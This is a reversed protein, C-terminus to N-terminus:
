LAFRETHIRRRSFGVDCLVHKVDKMMQPPGCLFVRDAAACEGAEILGRLMAANLRGQPGPWDPQRSLVHHVALLPMKSILEQLRDRAFIDNETRNAWLLTVSRQPDTAALHELMSLMPTVGVGGAILLLAEDPRSRIADSFRGYPGDVTAADGVALAPADRTYDGVAKITFAIRGDDRPGSSITFPHEEASVNKGHLKVFAFQGPLHVLGRGPPPALEVRCLDGTLRTVNHVTYPRRYLRRPKVFCVWVFLVAWAAAAAGWFGRVWLVDFDTGRAFAHVVAAVTAPFVLLHIVFWARYPILLFTRYLSTCVVVGLLILALIGFAEPWGQWPQVAAAYVLFPHVFALAGASAGLMRHIRLLRDLGVARDLLKLRASLAFQILLGMVALQGATRGAIILWGALTGYALDAPGYTARAAAAAVGALVAGAAIAAAAILRPSLARGAAPKDPAPDSM